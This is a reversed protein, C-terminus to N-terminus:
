KLLKMTQTKQEESLDIRSLVDLIDKPDLSIYQPKTISKDIQQESLWALDDIVTMDDIFPLQTMFFSHLQSNLNKEELIVLVAGYWKGKQSLLTGQVTGFIAAAVGPILIWDNSIGLTKGDQDAAFRLSSALAVSFGAQVNLSALLALLLLFKKIM